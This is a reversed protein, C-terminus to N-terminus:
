DGEVRKWGPSKAEREALQKWERLLSLSKKANEANYVFAGQPMMEALAEPREDSAWETLPGLVRKFVRETEATQEARISEILGDKVVFTVSYRAEGIGATKLWDNTETLQCMVSDGQARVQRISMHINLVFDHETLDRLVEKGQLSIQGVVEFSVEEAYLSLLKELDHGNYAEEYSQIVSTPKPSCSLALLVPLFLVSLVAVVCWSKRM